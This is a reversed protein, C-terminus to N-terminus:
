QKQDGTIIGNIATRVTSDSNSAELAFFKSYALKWDEGWVTRLMNEVYSIEEKVLYKPPDKLAEKIRDSRASSLAEQAENLNRQKDYKDKVARNFATGNNNQYAAEVERNAETLQSKATNVKKQATKMKEGGKIYRQAFKVGKGFVKEFPILGLIAFGLGQKYEKIKEPDPNDSLKELELQESWAVADSVGLPISVIPFLGAWEAVTHFNNVQDDDVNNLLHPGIVHLGQNVYVKQDRNLQDYWEAYKPSELYRDEEKWLEAVTKVNPSGITPGDHQPDYAVVGMYYELLVIRSVYFIFKSDPQIRASDVSFFKKADPDEVKGLSFSKDIWNATGWALDKIPEFCKIDFYINYKSQGYYVPLTGLYAKIDEFVPIVIKALKNSSFSIGSHSVELKDCLAFFYEEYPPSQPLARGAYDTRPNVVHSVMAHDNSWKPEYDKIGNKLRTDKAGKNLPLLSFQLHIVVDIAKEQTEDANQTSPVSAGGGSGM